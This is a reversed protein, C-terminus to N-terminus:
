RLSQLRYRITARVISQQGPAASSSNGAGTLAAKGVFQLRSPLPCANSFNVSPASGIARTQQFANAKLEGACLVFVATGTTGTWLIGALDVWVESGFDGKLIIYTSNAGIGGSISLIIEAVISEDYRAIIPNPLTGASGGWVVGEVAPVIVSDAYLIGGTQTIDISGFTPM